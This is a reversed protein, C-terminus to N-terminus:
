KRRGLTPLDRMRAQLAATFVGSDGDALDVCEKFVLASQEAADIMDQNIQVHSGVPLFPDQEGQDLLAERLQLAKTVYELNSLEEGGFLEKRLQNVDVKEEAKPAAIEDGNVFASLLRKNEDKLADYESRSVSNQKMEKLAEIYDNSDNVQEQTAVQQEEM